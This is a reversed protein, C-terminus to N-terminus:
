LKDTLLWILFEIVYESNIKHTDIVYILEDNDAWRLELMTMYGLEDNKDYFIDIKYNSYGYADIAYTKTEMNFDDPKQGVGAWKSPNMTKIFDEAIERATM